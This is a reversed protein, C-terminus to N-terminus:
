LTEQRMAAVPEPSPKGQRDIVANASPTQADGYCRIRVANQNPWEFFGSVKTTPCWLWHKGDRGAVVLYSQGPVRRLKFNGRADTRTVKVGDLGSALTRAAAKAFCDSDSSSICNDWLENHLQDAESGFTVLGVSVHVPRRPHLEDFVTGQIEAPGAAKAPTKHHFETAVFIAVGVVALACLELKM